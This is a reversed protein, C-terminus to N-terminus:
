YLDEIDPCSLVMQIAAQNPYQIIVRKLNTLTWVSLQEFRLHNSRLPSLYARISLGELRSASSTLVESINIVQQISEPYQTWTFERLLTMHSISNTFLTMKDNTVKTHRKYEYSLDPTRPLRVDEMASDEALEISRIGRALRPRNELLKWNPSRIDCSIHRYKLHDPIVLDKFTHCTLALSLLDKTSELLFAIDDWITHLPLSKPYSMSM